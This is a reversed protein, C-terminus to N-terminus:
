SNLYTARDFAIDSRISEIKGRRDRIYEKCVEVDINAIDREYRLQAVGSDGKAYNLVLNGPEKKGRTRFELQKKALAQRYNKEAAALRKMRKELEKKLSELTGYLEKIKKFKDDPYM